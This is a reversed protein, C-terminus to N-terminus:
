EKVLEWRYYKYRDDEFIGYYADIIRFSKPDLLPLVKGKYYVHKKDKAFFPQLIEFTQVDSEPIIKFDFFVHNKDQHYVKESAWGDYQFAAKKFTDPDAGAILEGVYFIHKRDRSYSHKDILRFSKPEAGLIKKENMFVSKKDKGYWLYHSGGVIQFSAPLAEPLINEEYYVNDADKAYGKGLLVFTTPDAGEIKTIHFFVQDKDLFVASEFPDTELFRFTAKDISAVKKGAWFISNKDVFWGEAHAIGGDGKQFVPAFTAPDAGELLNKEYFVHFKDKAYTTATRPDLIFEFTHPDAGEIKEGKYYVHYADQLYYNMGTIYSSSQGEPVKVTAPDAGKIITYEHFVHKDDKTYGTWYDLIVFYNPDAIPIIEDKYYVHNKDKSYQYSEKEVLKFTRADRSPLIKGYRYVNNKDKGYTNNLIEFTALDAENVEFRALTSADPEDNEFLGGNVYYVKNDKILYFSSYSKAKAISLSFFLLACLLFGIIIKQRKM